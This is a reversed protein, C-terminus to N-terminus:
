NIDFLAVFEDFEVAVAAPEFFSISFHSVDYDFVQLHVLFQVVYRKKLDDAAAVFLVTDTEASADLIEFFHSIAFANYLIHGGKFENRGVSSDHYTVPALM